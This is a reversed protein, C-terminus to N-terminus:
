WPQLLPVWIGRVNETTSRYQSQIHVHTSAIFICCSRRWAVKSIISHQIIISPTVYGTVRPNGGCEDRGSCRSSFHHTYAEHENMVRSHHSSYYGHGYGASREQDQQAVHISRINLHFTVFPSSHKVCMFMGQINETNITMGAVVVAM